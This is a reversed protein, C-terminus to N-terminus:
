HLPPHVAVVAWCLNRSVRDFSEPSPGDCRVQERRVREAEREDELRQREQEARKRAEKEEM